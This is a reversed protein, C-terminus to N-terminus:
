HTIIVKPLRTQNVTVNPPTITVGQPVGSNDKAQFTFSLKTKDPTGPNVLYTGQWNKIGPLEVSGQVVQINKYLVHGTTAYITSTSPYLYFTGSGSTAIAVASLHQWTGKKTNDYNYYASLGGEADAVFTSGTSPINSDSSIFVDFSITYPLGITIPFSMGHYTWPLNQAYNYRYQILSPTFSDVTFTGNGKATFGADSSPAPYIGSPVASTSSTAVMTNPPLMTSPGGNISLSVGVGSALGTTQANLTVTQDAVTTAPLNITYPNLYASFISPVGGINISIYDDSSQSQHIFTTNTAYVPIQYTQSATGSPVIYSGTWTNSYPISPSVPSSPTLTLVSGNINKAYASTAYGTTKVTITFATGPTVVPNILQQATAIIKNDIPLVATGKITQNTGTYLNIFPTQGLINLRTPSYNSVDAYTPVTLGKVTWQRTGNSDLDIYSTAPINYAWDWSVYLSNVWGKTVIVADVTGTPAGTTAGSYPYTQNFSTKVIQPSNEVTITKQDINGTFTTGNNTDTPTYTLTITQGIKANSPVTYLGAWMNGSVLTSNDFLGPQAAYVKFGSPLGYFELGMGTSGMTSPTVTWTFIQWSTTLSITKNDLPCTTGDYLYGQVQGSWNQDAKLMFSITYPKGATVSFPYYDYLYNYASADNKVGVFVNGYTPDVYQSSSQWYYSGYHTWNSWDSGHGETNAKNISMPVLSSNNGLNDKISLANAYGNTTADIPITQGPSATQTSVHGKVMLFRNVTVSTYVPGYSVGGPSVAVMSFTLASGDPVNDPVQYTQWWNTNNSTLMNPLAIAFPTIVGNTQTQGSVSINIYNTSGSTNAYVAVINQNPRNVQVNAIDLYTFNGSFNIIDLARLNTQGTGITYTASAQKIGNGLDTITPTVPHHAYSSWDDNFTFFSIKFGVNPDDSKYYFSQTIQEGPIVKYYGALIEGTRPIRWFGDAQQKANNINAMDNQNFINVLPRHSYVPDPAASVATIQLPPSGVTVNLYLPTSNQQNIFTSNYGVLWITYSGVPANSPITFNVWWANNKPITSVATSPNMAYSIPAGPNSPNTGYATVGLAYGISATSITITEGPSVTTKSLGPSSLNIKNQINILTTTSVTQQTSNSANLWPSQSLVTLIYQSYIPANVPIQVSANWNNSEPYAYNSPTFNVNLPVYNSINGLSYTVPTSYLNVGTMGVMCTDYSTGVTLSCWVTGDSKIITWDGVVKDATTIFQSGDYSYTSSNYASYAGLRTPYEKAVPSYRGPWLMGWGYFSGDEGVAFQSINGAYISKIKPMGTQITPTDYRFIYSGNGHTAQGLTYVSGDSRLLIANATGTSVKTINSVGALQTPVSTYPLIVPYSTGGSMQGWYWVTGDSKVAMWYDTGSGMAVVNSIGAVQTGDVLRWITGDAKRAIGNGSPGADVDVINSLTSMKVLTAPYDTDRQTYAPRYKWVSGDSQVAYWIGSALREMSISIIGNLGAVQSSPIWPYGMSPMTWVTGDPKLYIGKSVAALSNTDAYNVPKNSNATTSAAFQGRTNDGWIHLFGSANLALTTRSNPGSGIRLVNTLGTSVWTTSSSFNGNGLQGDGNYGTSYVVNDPGIAETNYGGACIALGTGGSIAGPVNSNNYTGNGLQGYANYGWAWLSNDIKQLVSHLGGGSISKASTIGTVHVPTIRNSNTGDGLQGYENYGWAWAKGDYTIALSHYGGTGISTVNSIDNVQVPVASNSTASNGLQGHPGYGWAFVIGDKRLALNHYNGSSISVINTLGHVQVPTVSNNGAGNGLEGEWGRGWAWVTGDSKLALSHTDGASVSVANTLGQVQVALHRETSTGDGLQGHDNAGSAWVTNDSRITLVHLSGSAITNKTGDIQVPKAIATVKNAFGTTNATLSAWETPALTTPNANSDLTMPNAVYIDVFNCSRDTVWQNSAYFRINIYQGIHASAPITYSYSGSAPISVIAGTNDKASGSTTASGLTASLTLVQGPYGVIPNVSGTISPIPVYIAPPTVYVPAVPASWNLFGGTTNGPAQSTLLSQGYNYANTQTGTWGEGYYGYTTAGAQPTQNGTGPTSVPIGGSLYTKMMAVTQESNLGAVVTITGGTNANVGTIVQQVMSATVAGGTGGAIVVHGGSNLVDVMGQIAASQDSVSEIAVGLSTNPPVDSPSGVIYSTSSAQVVYVGAFLIFFALSFIVALLKRM